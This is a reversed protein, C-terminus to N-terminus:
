YGSCRVYPLPKDTVNRLGFAITIIDFSNDDPLQEADAQVYRINGVHGKDRLKDRGVSCPM